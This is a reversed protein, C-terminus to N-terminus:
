GISISIMSCSKVIMTTFTHTPRTTRCWCHVKGGSLVRGLARNTVSVWHTIATVVQDRTDIIGEWGKTGNMAIVWERGLIETM